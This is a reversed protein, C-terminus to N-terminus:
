KGNNFEMNRWARRKRQKIFQSLEDEDVRLARGVKVFPFDKGKWKWSYLTSPSLSLIKAVTVISLLKM